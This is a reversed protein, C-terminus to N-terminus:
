YRYRGVVTRLDSLARCLNDGQCFLSGGRKKRWNLYKHGREIADGVTMGKTPRVSKLFVKDADDYATAGATQLTWYGEYGIEDSPTMRYTLETLEETNYISRYKEARYASAPLEDLRVAEKGRDIAEGVTVAAPLVIVAQKRQYEEPKASRPYSKIFVVREYARIYEADTESLCVVMSQVGMGYDKVLKMHQTIDSNLKEPLPLAKCESSTDAAFTPASVLLAALILKKM